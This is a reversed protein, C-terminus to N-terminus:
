NSTPPSSIGNIYYHVAETKGDSAYEIVAPGVSRHVYGTVDSGISYIELLRVGRQCAETMMPSRDKWLHVDVANEDNDVIGERIKRDLWEGLVDQALTKKRGEGM